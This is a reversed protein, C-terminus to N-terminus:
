EPTFLTPLANFIGYDGASIGDWTKDASGASLEAGDWTGSQDWTYSSKPGFRTAPVATESSFTTPSVATEPTFVTKNVV